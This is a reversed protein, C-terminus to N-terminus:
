ALLKPLVHNNTFQWLLTSDHTLFTAGNYFTSRRGQLSGLTTYFGARIDESGVWLTFERHANLAVVQTVRLRADFTGSDDLREIDEIIQAEAQERTLLTPSGFKVDLLGPVRTPYIGYIGPLRPLDYPTGVGTNWLALGAPFGSVRVLASCYFNARFRGFTERELPDLDFARLNDLSPPCTVLLKRCRIAFRGRPGSAHVVVRPATRDVREVSTGLLVDDGLFEGVKEYLQGNGGPAMLYKNEFMSTVTRASVNKLVYITPMRLLDGLGQGYGSAVGVMADLGHKEVFAGFPLLLDAPVPQPLDFGKDLDYYSEAIQEQYQFYRALAEAIADHSPPVYHALKKGTHFDFHQPKDWFETPSIPELPVGFRAFYETVVPVDHFIMVGLEATNGTVPDRYTETHGGLNPKRDVVVVSRGADRLRVATYTGSAGGGIVCVDRELVTREVAAGGNRTGASRPIGPGTAMGM